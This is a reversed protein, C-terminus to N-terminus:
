EAEREWERLINGGEGEILEVRLGEGPITIEVQKSLKVLDKQQMIAHQIKAKLAEVKSMDISINSGAGLRDTGTKNARGRPDNFYGVVIVDVEGRV